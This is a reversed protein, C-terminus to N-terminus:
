RRDDNKFGQLPPVCRRCNDFRRPIILPPPPQHNQRAKGQM